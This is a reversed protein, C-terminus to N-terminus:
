KGSSGFKNAGRDAPVIEDTFSVTTPYVKEVKMQAIRDGAKVKYDYEEFCYLKLSLEGRFGNDIEGLHPQIGHKFGLGSRPRFVFGFGPSIYAVQIGTKVVAEGHGPITMDETAYIDFCNDEPYAKSPLQANDSLKKFKIEVQEM